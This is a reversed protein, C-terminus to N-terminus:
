ISEIGTPGRVSYEAKQKQKEEQSINEHQLAQM